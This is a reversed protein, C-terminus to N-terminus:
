QIGTGGQHMRANYKRLVERYIGIAAMLQANEEDLRVIESAMKRVLLVLERDEPSSRLLDQAKALTNHSQRM